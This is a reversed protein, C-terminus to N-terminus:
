RRHARLIIGTVKGSTDLGIVANINPLKLLEIAEGFPESEDMSVWAKSVNTAALLDAVSREGPATLGANAKADNALYRLLEFAGFVAIPRNAADFCIAAQAKRDLQDLVSDLMTANTVAVFDPALRTALAVFGAVPGRPRTRLVASVTAHHKVWAATEACRFGIMEIITALMANADLHLIPEHHAIRNRFQNIARVLNQVDHRSMGPAGVTKRPLNPLMLNLNTRWLDHYDPRFLNSWFDFTMEAIIQGRSAGVGARTIAKQLTSRGEPMLVADVFAADVHWMPGYSAVLLEDIANRLTVEIVGLPYIFSKALRANYLYLALAYGENGGGLGLYKSFRPESLSARIAAVQHPLNPYPVQSEAMGVGLQSYCDFRGWQRSSRTRSVSHYPM